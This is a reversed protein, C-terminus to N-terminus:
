SEWVVVQEHGIMLAFGSARERCWTDFRDSRGSVWGCRGVASNTRLNYAVAGVRAM